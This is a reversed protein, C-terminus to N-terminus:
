RHFNSFHITKVNSICIQKSNCNKRVKVQKVFYFFDSSVAEEEFEVNVSENEFKKIEEISKMPLSNSKSFAHYKEFADRETEASKVTILNGTILLSKEIVALRTLIELSNEHLIMLQKRLFTANLPLDYNENSSAGNEQVDPSKNASSTTARQIEDFEKEFNVEEITFSDDSLLENRPRKSKSVEFDPDEMSNDGFPESEVSSDPNLASNGYRSPEKRKRIVKTM